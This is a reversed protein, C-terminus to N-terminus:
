PGGFVSVVTWENALVSSRAGDFDQVTVVRGDVLIDSPGLNFQDVLEANAFRGLATEFFGGIYPTLGQELAQEVMTRAISRGGVRAPKICVVSAAGYRVVNRIDQMSRISEDLSLQIGSDQLDYHATFDGVGGIQEVFAVSTHVSALAVHERVQDSTPGSANYDLVVPCALNQLVDFARPDVLPSLKLRILSVAETVIPVYPTDLLSGTAIGSSTALQTGMVQRVEGDYLAGEILAASSRSVPDNGFLAPIQAWFPHHANRARVSLFRPLAIRELHELVEGVAADGNVRWGQPAIEAVGTFSEDSLALAISTRSEHNEVGSRISQPLKREFVSLLAKM